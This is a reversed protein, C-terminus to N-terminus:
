FFFFFFKKKFFTFFFHFFPMQLRKAVTKTKMLIQDLQNKQQFLHFFHMPMRVIGYSLFFVLITIGYVTGVTIVITKVNGYVYNFSAIFNDDFILLVLFLVISILLIILLYYSLMKLVQTLKKKWGLFGSSHFEM